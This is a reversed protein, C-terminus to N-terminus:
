DKQIKKFSVAPEIEARWSQQAEFSKWNIKDLLWTGDNLYIPDGKILNLTVTSEDDSLTLQVAGNIGPRVSLNVGNFSNPRNANITLTEPTHTFRSM